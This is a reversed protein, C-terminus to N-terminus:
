ISFKCRLLSGAAFYHEEDNAGVKWLYDDGNVFTALRM